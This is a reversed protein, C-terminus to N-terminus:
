QQLTQVMKHIINLFSRNMSASQLGNIAFYAYQLGNNGNGFLAYHIIGANRILM